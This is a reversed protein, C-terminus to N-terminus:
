LNWQIFIKFWKLLSRKQKYIKTALRGRLEPGFKVTDRSQNEPDLVETSRRVGFTHFCFFISKFKDKWELYLAGFGTNKAKFQIGLGSFYVVHVNCQAPTMHSRRRASLPLQRWSYRWVSVTCTPLHLHATRFCSSKFMCSFFSGNYISYSYLSYVKLLPCYKESM